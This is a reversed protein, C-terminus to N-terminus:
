DCINACGDFCTLRRPPGAKQKNQICASVFKKSM